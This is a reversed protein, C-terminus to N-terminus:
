YEERQGAYSISGRLTGSTTMQLDTEAAGSECLVIKLLYTDPVAQLVAYTASGMSINGLSVSGSFIFRDSDDVSKQIKYPVDILLDGTGTHGSWSIEFCVDTRLGERVSLGAQVTYTGVGSSSSGSITPIWKDSNSTANSTRYHFNLGQFGSSIVNSRSYSM